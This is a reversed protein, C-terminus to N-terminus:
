NRDANEDLSSSEAPKNQVDTKAEITERMVPKADPLYLPGKNGCAVTNLVILLVFLIAPFREARRIMGARAQNMDNYVRCYLAKSM